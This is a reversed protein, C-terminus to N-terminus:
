AEIAQRGVSLAFERVQDETDCRLWGSAWLVGNCSASYRWGAGERAAGVVWENDANMMVLENDFSM